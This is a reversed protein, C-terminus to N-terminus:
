SVKQRQRDLGQSSECASRCVGDCLLLLRCNELMSREKVYTALEFEVAEKLNNLSGPRKGKWWRVGSLLIKQLVRWFM